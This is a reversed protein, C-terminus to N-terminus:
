VLIGSIMFVACICCDMFAANLAKQFLLGVELMNGINNAFGFEVQRTRRAEEGDTSPGKQSVLLQGIIVTIDTLLVLCLPRFNLMSGLIKGGCSYGRTSMVVLLAISVACLLRINESASIAHSIQKSTLLQHSMPLNIYPARDVVQDSSTHAIPNSQEAIKGEQETNAEAEKRMGGKFFQKGMKCKSFESSTEPRSLERDADHEPLLETKDDLEAAHFTQDIPQHEHAAMGAADVNHLVDTTPTAAASRPNEEEQQQQPQLVSPPPSGFSSSPNLPQSQGTIFALRESGREM